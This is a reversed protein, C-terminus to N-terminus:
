IDLYSHISDSFTGLTCSCGLKPESIDRRLLRLAFIAGGLTTLVFHARHPTWGEADTYERPRCRCQNTKTSAKLGSNMAM